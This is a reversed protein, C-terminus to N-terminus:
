QEDVKNKKNGAWTYPDFLVKFLFTPVRIWNPLNNWFLRIDSNVTYIEPELPKGEVGILRNQAINKLFTSPFWYNRKPAGGFNAVDYLIKCAAAVCTPTRMVQESELWAVLAKLNEEPVHRYRIVLGRNIKWGAKVVTHPAFFMRGDFRTGDIILYTHGQTNGTVDIAVILDAPEKFIDLEHFPAQNPTEIKTYPLKRHAGMKKRTESISIEDRSWRINEQLESFYTDCVSAAAKARPACLLLGLLIVWRIM